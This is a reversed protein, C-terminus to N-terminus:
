MVHEFPDMDFRINLDIIAATEHGCEPCAKGGNVDDRESVLHVDGCTPCRVREDSM